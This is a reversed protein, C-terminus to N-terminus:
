SRVGAFYSYSTKLAHLYTEPTGIDLRIEDDRLIVAKVEGGEEILKEIADTLQLEDGVGPPTRDLVGMINPTFIYFPMIALDSPPHMPKEVVRSVRILGDPLREGVVVGYQRPNAVQQILLSAGLPDSPGVSVLRELVSNNRSIIYTDGACLLFNDGGVFHRAMKVADGFGRPQPQSAWLIVSNELMKYFSTLESAMSAKGVKEMKEVFDWDPTFHDEIARKGRGVVMCFERFGYDYLQEYLAQLLPKLVISKNYGEVYIPLMEKPMEKTTPLLRTGLGAATIVVKKVM